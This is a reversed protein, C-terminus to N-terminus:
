AAQLSMVMRGPPEPPPAVGPGVDLGVALGVGFGVAPGVGLGVALGVGFGTAPGVGLGVGFGVALGVGLGVACGTPLGPLPKPPTHQQYLGRPLPASMHSSQRPKESGSLQHAGLLLRQSWHPPVHHASSLESPM